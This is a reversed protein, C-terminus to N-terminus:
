EDKAQNTLYNQIGIQEIQSLQGELWDIHADEDRMIEELMSKTPMDGVNNAQKIAQSYMEWAGQEAELDSALQKAVDPGIHIKNLKDVKPMGELFLIRGILKEAHKMEQIARKEISEHLRDYGWDACMESHVMYQNIATLEDALLDNLTAILQDNGKM